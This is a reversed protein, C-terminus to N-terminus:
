GLQTDRAGAALRPRKGDAVVVTRRTLIPRRSLRDWLAAAGIAGAAALTGYGPVVYRADFQAYVLPGLLVTAAVGLMLLGVALRRGRALPLGGVALVLLLVLPVGELRTHQEYASLADLTGADTHPTLTPYWTALYMLEDSKRPHLMTSIFGAYGLGGNVVNDDSSWFRKLDPGLHKAVEVPAGAGPPAGFPGLRTLAPGGYGTERKMQSLYVGLLLSAALAAVAAVVLRHRLPGRVSGLLWLVAVAILPLGVLRVCGAAAALAGALLAWPLSGTEMTRTLVYVLGACMFAFLAEPMPAHELFLQPGALLVVAAPILGWGAPAVRRVTMFLVLGTGIGLLHHLLITFSLQENLAHTLALFVSYGAPWPSTNGAANLFINDRAAIMYWSGDPFGIFAPSTATLLMLRLGIGGLVLVALAVLAWRDADLAARAKTTASASKLM